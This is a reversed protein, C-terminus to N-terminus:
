IIFYLNLFRLVQFLTAFGQHIVNVFDIFKQGLVLFGWGSGELKWLKLLFEFILVLVFKMQFCQVITQFKLNKVDFFGLYHDNNM